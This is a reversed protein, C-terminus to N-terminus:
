RGLAKGECFTNKNREKREKQWGTHWKKLERQLLINQQVTELKEGGM